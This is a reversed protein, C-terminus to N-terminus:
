LYSLDFPIIGTYQANEFAKSYDPDGKISELLDKISLILKQLEYSIVQLQKVLMTFSDNRIISRSLQLDLARFNKASEYLAKARYNLPGPKTIMSPIEDRISLKDQKLLIKEVKQCYVSLEISLFPVRELIRIRLIIDKILSISEPNMFIALDSMFTKQDTM